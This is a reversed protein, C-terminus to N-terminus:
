PKDPPHCKRNRRIPRFQRAKDDWFAKYTDLWQDASALAGTNLACIHVRGHVTRDVIGASELVLLHKSVAALSM